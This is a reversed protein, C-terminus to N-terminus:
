FRSIVFGLIVANGFVARSIDLFLAIMYKWKFEFLDVNSNRYRMCRSVIEDINASVFPMLIGSVVWSGVLCVCCYIFFGSKVIVSFDDFENVSTGSLFVTLFFIVLIYFTLSDGVTKGPFAMFFAALVFVVVLGSVDDGYFETGGITFALVASVSMLIITLIIGFNAVLWFKFTDSM